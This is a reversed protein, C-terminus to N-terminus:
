CDELCFGRFLYEWREGDPNVSAEDMFDEDEDKM